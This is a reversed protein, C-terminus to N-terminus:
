IYPLSSSATEHTKFIRKKNKKLGNERHTQQLLKWQGTKMSVSEEAKDLTSILDHFANEVETASTKIQQIDQQNKRITRM